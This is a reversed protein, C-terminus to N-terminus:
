GSVEGRIMGRTRYLGILLHGRRYLCGVVLNSSSCQLVDEGPGTVCHSNVGLRCRCQLLLVISGVRSTHVGPTIVYGGVIHLRGIVGFRGFRGGAMVPLPSYRVLRCRRRRCRGSRGVGARSGTRAKDNRRWRGGGARTEDLGCRDLRRARVAAERHRRRCRMSPSLGQRGSEDASAVHIDDLSHPSQARGSRRSLTLGPAPVRM